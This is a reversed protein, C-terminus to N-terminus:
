HVKPLRGSVRGIGKAACWRVVTDRDALGDLLQQVVTEVEEPVEGEEPCGGMKATLNFGQVGGDLALRPLSSDDENGQLANEDGLGAPM